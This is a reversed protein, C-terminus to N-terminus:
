SGDPYGGRHLVMPYHPLVDPPRVGARWGEPYPGTGALLDRMPLRGLAARLGEVAEPGFRDHWAGEIDTILEHCAALAFTGRPTLRAVRWRGGAPDPGEAALGRKVLVGMAMAVSEKSVGALRPVDRRPVGSETLVRLVNVCIALSLPSQSEFEAAFALLVRSLLAWLPLGAGRDGAAEETTAGDVVVGLGGQEPVRSFLGYGLIPLCDPLGAPLRAAIAALHERLADVAPAGFRERWREEVVGGIPAWGDRADRGQSTLRV